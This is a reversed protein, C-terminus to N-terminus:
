EGEESSEDTKGGARRLSRFRGSPSTPNRGKWMMLGGILVGLSGACFFLYNPNKVQDTIFFLILVLLGLFLCFQGIRGGLTM